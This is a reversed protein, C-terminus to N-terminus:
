KFIGLTSNELGCNLCRFRTTGSAGLNLGFAIVEDQTFDSIQEENYIEFSTGRCKRCAMYRKNIDFKKNKTM